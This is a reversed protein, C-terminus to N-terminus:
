KQFPAIVPRPDILSVTDPYCITTWDLIDYPISKRGWALSLHLHPIPAKARWSLALTAIIEGAKVDQGTVIEDVPSTHGYLTLFVDEGTTPFRHEIIVTKGLFDEIVKVVVGDYMVPIRAGAGFSFVNDNTGRYFLLDVGEHPRARKGRDGWWTEQAGFEMGPYFFWTSFGQKDLSNERVFVETFSSKPFYITNTSNM